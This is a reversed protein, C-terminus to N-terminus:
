TFHPSCHGHLQKHLAYVFGGLAWKGLEPREVAMVALDEKQRKQEARAEDMSSQVQLITQM